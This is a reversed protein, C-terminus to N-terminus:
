QHDKVMQTQQFLQTTLEITFALETNETKSDIYRKALRELLQLASEQLKESPKAIQLLTELLLDLEEFTLEQKSVKSSIDLLDNALQSSNFLDNDSSKQVFTAKMTERVRKLFTSQAEIYLRFIEIFGQDDIKKINVKLLINNAFLDIVLSCLQESDVTDQPLHEANDCCFRIFPFVLSTM